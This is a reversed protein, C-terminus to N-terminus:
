EERYLPENAWAERKALADSLVERILPPLKDQEMYSLVSVLRSQAERYEWKRHEIMMSNPILRKESM